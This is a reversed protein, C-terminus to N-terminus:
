NPVNVQKHMDDGVPSSSSERYQHHTIDIVQSQSSSTTFFYEIIKIIRDELTIDLFWM